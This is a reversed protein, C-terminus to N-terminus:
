KKLNKGLYRSELGYGSRLNSATRLVDLGSHKYLVEAVEKATPM